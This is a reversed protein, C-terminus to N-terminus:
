LKMIINLNLIESLVMNNSILLYSSDMHVSVVFSEHTSFELSDYVFGSFYYIDCKVGKLCASGGLERWNFSRASFLL